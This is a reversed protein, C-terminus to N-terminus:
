LPHTAAGHEDGQQFRARSVDPQEEHLRSHHDGRPQQPRRPAAQPHDHIYMATAARLSRLAEAHLLEANDQVYLNRLEQGALLSELPDIDVLMDNRRVTIDPPSAPFETLGELGALSILLPNDEILLSAPMSSINGLPALSAVNSDSIQLKTKVTGNFGSLFDINDLELCGSVAVTSFSAEPHAVFRGELARLRCTSAINLLTTSASNGLVLASSVQIVGFDCRSVSVDGVIRTLNPMRLDGLDGAVSVPGSVTFRGNITTLSALALQDFNAGVNTIALADVYELRRAPCGRTM